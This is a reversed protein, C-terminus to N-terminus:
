RPACAGWQFFVEDEAAESAGAVLELFEEVSLKAVFDFEEEMQVVTGDKNRVIIAEEEGDDSPELDPKPEGDDPLDVMLADIYKIDM